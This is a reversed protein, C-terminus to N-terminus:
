EERELEKIDDAYYETLAETILEAPSSNYKDELYALVNSAHHDLVLVLTKM